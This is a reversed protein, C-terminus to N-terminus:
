GRIAEGESEVVEEDTNDAIAELDCRLCRKAQEIATAEDFSGRVEEFSRTREEVPMEPPHRHGAESIQEIEDDSLELPEVQRLPRTVTFEKEFTIGRLYRHIYEAATRGSAMAGSITGAGSFVDGAVFIDPADTIHSLPDAVITGAPGQQPGDAEDSLFSLDSTQGISIIVTDGHIVSETEPEFTPNFDGEKDFISLCNIIELGAVAGKEELIRVPGKAPYFIIGEELAEKIDWPHALMEDRLELFAMHVEEAGLRLASRVCDIAVNGGGIIIVKKGVRPANGLAIDRLFTVGQLVGDLDVGEIPLPRSEHLGVAILTAKYGENKLDHLNIDEGIRTNSRLEVGEDLIKQIDYDLIDRPLRYSPIGVALMGGPVPLAEFITPKYGMRALDHAATLGAPGSGVIAVKEYDPKEEDSTIPGVGNNNREWDLVFRKLDNIAVPDGFQGAACKTECPHHCARGCVSPLPNTERILAAAEAFEGKAILTLYSPVNDELPCTHQCASSIIQRCVAGPCRKYKIHQEYEERFYRITSQVPFPASSGLACLSTDILTESLEELLEIDGEKGRGETIDVLIQYMRDVGIRCPVCKGCSEDRLFELFYKAVDVMCTTEDMVIMGGSGMMSGLDWLRDFDVQTDILNEPICGGSPGGTQVAKFKRNGPIGGGIDFIIDRLTVGMPVEVLGTNNITGVLSFVKTGKSNENGIQSYWDAGRAMIVPINAWTEVNNLNSPKNWLGAEVTHIYKARPEGVRGELSAMLATSEGCVFAGGGRNITVTFDFGSGFINEGIFGYEMAQSLANRLREVALPYEARVYIYGDHSGIAYAGIIMGELVSHPDGELISRDMYAGPDGEDANCIVYKPEGHANRCSEWKKGTLFGGGGRGSLGSKKVEDIIEESSLSQLTNYLALYGGRAIYEDISHPNIIGCNRMAIKQQRRYFPLDRFLPIAEIAEGGDELPYKVTENEVLFEEEDTRYLALDARFDGNSLTAVLEEATEPTVQHYTIRPKGPMLIDVLPEKECYGVCGTETVIVDLNEAKVKEQIAVLVDGAGSALGCTATGVAIRPKAPFLSERGREKIGSLADLTRIQKNSM